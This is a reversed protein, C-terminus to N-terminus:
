TPIFKKIYFKCQEKFARKELKNLLFLYSIYIYIICYGLLFFNPLFYFTILGIIVLSITYLFSNVEFPIKYYKNSYYWTSLMLALKTFVVAFAIGYANYKVLIFNCVLSVILTVTYSILFLISKKGYFIGISTIEFLGQFIWSFLLIPFVQLAGSYSPPAMIKLIFPSLIVLIIVILGLLFTYIKFVYAFLKPSDKEYWRSFAFPGFSISFSTTILTFLGAMKVSLAYEALQTESLKRLLFIRDLSPLITNIITIMGFPIGYLFMKFSLKTNIKGFLELIIMKNLIFGITVLITSSVIAAYFAGKVGLSLSKVFVILLITYLISYGLTFIIYINRNSKWKFINTFYSLIVQGPIMAVSIYILSKDISFLYNGFFLRSILNSFLFYGIFFFLILFLHNIFGSVLIDTQYSNSDKKDGDHFFRAIAADQGFMLIGTYIASYTLLLDYNLFDEKSLVRTLFPTVFFTIAKSLAGSVGYWFSDKALFKLQEKISM